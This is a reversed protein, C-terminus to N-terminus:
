PLRKQWATKRAPQTTGQCVKLRTSRGFPSLSLIFRV